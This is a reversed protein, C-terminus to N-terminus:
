RMELLRLELPELTLQSADLPQQTRLDLAHTLDWKSRLAITVPARRHNLVYCLKRKGLKLSRCEVGWTGTRVYPKPCARRVAANVQAWLREVPAGTPLEVVCGRRAFANVKEGVEEPFERPWPAVFVKCDDLAGELIRKDTVIAVDRDQFLCALYADEIAVGGYYLALPGRQRQFAHIEPALRVLDLSTRGLAEVANAHWYVSATDPRGYVWNCGVDRGHLALAWLAAYAYNDPMNRGDAAGACMHYEGDLIPQDPQLSRHFDHRLLPWAFDAALRCSFDPWSPMADMGNATLVEGVAERDVSLAADTDIAKIHIPHTQDHKHVETINWDLFETVTQTSLQTLTEVDDAEPRTQRFETLLSAPFDPIARYWAENILDYSLLAPHDRLYPVVIAAHRAIVARFHPDTITWPMFNNVQQRWGTADTSPWRERAWGPFYHPSLLLDVAMNHEAAADLVARIGEPYAPEANEDEPVSSRPGTETSVCTYGMKSLDEFYGPNFWGCVGLLMVPRDGSFFSGERCRLHQLSVEPYDIATDPRDLLGELEAKTRRACQVLFEASQLTFFRCGEDLMDFLESQYRGVVTRSVRPYRTDIGREVAEALLADIDAVLPAVPELAKALDDRTPEPPDAPGAGKPYVARFDKFFFRFPGSGRFEGASERTLIALVDVETIPDAGLGMPVLEALPVELESWARIAMGVLPIRSVMRRGQRDGAMVFLHNTDGWARFRIAKPLPLGLGNIRMGHIMQGAQSIQITLDVSNGPDWASWLGAKMTARGVPQWDGCSGLPSEAFHYVNESAAPAPAEEARGWGAALMAALAVVIIRWRM